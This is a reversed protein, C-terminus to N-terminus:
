ITGVISLVSTGPTVTWEGSAINSNTVTNNYRLTAQNYFTAM